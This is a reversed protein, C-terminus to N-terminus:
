RFSIGPEGAPSDECGWEAYPNRRSGSGDGPFVSGSTKGDWSQDDPDMQYSRYGWEREGTM